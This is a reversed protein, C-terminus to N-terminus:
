QAGSPGVTRLELENIMETRRMEYSRIAATVEDLTSKNTGYAAVGGLSAAIGAVLVLPELRFLGVVGLMLMLGGAAIAVRAVLITKRVREAEDSLSEIETELDAIQQHLDSM